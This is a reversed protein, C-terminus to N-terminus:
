HRLQDKWPLPNVPASYGALANYASGLGFQFQRGLNILDQGMFNSLTGGKQKKGMKKTKKSVGSKNGGYGDFIRNIEEQPVENQESELYRVKEAEKEAQRKESEFDNRFDMKGGKLFPPNAGVNVMQRSIDNDYTNNVYYNRDGVIGDVGPWGSSSPTWSSGVLGNPYPIGANGGKMIRKKCQSCKCANRHRVGGHMFGGTQKRGGTMPMGCGCGGKQPSANNYITNPTIPPGTNPMAPNIANTNIPITSPNTLGCRSGGKGTYAFFPNPVSPIPKGTYALPADPSGGLYKRTKSCGKMNYVKQKRRSSRKSKAM